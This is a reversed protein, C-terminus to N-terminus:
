DIQICLSIDSIVCALKRISDPCYLPEHVTSPKPSPTKGGLGLHGLIKPDEVEQMGIEPVHCTHLM